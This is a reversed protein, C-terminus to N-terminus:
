RTAAGECVGVRPFAGGGKLARRGAFVCSGSPCDAGSSCPVEATSPVPTATTGFIIIIEEFTSAEIAAVSESVKTVAAFVGNGALITEVSIALRDDLAGSTISTKLSLKLANGTATSDSGAGVEVAVVFSVRVDGEALLSRRGAVVDFVELDTIQSADTIADTAEVIIVVLELKAAADFDVARGTLTRGDLVFESQMKVGPM